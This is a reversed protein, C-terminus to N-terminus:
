FEASLVKPNVEWRPSGPRGPRKGGEPEPAPRVIHREGLQRLPGELDETKEVIVRGKLQQFAERTTFSQLNKRRVWGVLVEGLETDVRDGFNFAARAHEILYEGVKLASAMTDSAIQGFLAASSGHAHLVVHMLGAIRVLAGPLKSAWDRLGAAYLDGTTGLRRELGDPGYSWSHLLEAAEPSLTLAPIDQDPNVDPIASLKFVVQRYTESVGAPIPPTDGTRTGVTDAPVSWLYRASLGRGSFPAEPRLVEKMVHPQIALGLTLTPREVTTSRTVRDVHIPEGNFARLVGDLNPVGRSYRGALNDFIGGEATISALRGGQRALCEILAEPTVDSILLQPVVPEPLEALLRAAELASQQAAADDTKVADKAAKEARGVQLRRLTELEVQDAKAAAIALREVELLPALLTSVVGSKRSGPAMAIAVYLNLHEVWNQRAEVSVRGAVCAAVVALIMLAALDVPTESATAVAEAMERLQVPLAGSPFAPLPTTTLKEPEAWAGSMGDEDFDHLEEDDTVYGDAVLASACASYDGDFDLVARAAFLSYSTDTAFPTSSSFVHLLNNDRYNTTASTGGQKGPRTWHTAAGTQGSRMWGHPELVEAWTAEANFVDGPRGSAAGGAQATRLPIVEPRPKEDLSRALAHLDAHEQETLTAVSAFSGEVLTYPKGSPHVSGCSPATIVFGGEGRTEIKVVFDDGAAAMALKTNGPVEPVRYLLHMGGRPAMESYGMSVRNLLESLGTAQAAAFIENAAEETEFELMELGGSVAGCIVGIGQRRGDGFWAVLQPDTPLERQFRKWEGAPRKSGDEM